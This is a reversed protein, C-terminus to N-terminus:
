VVSKVSTPKGDRQYLQLPYPICWDQWWRKAILQEIAPLQEVGDESVTIGLLTTHPPSSSAIEKHLLQVGRCEERSLAVTRVICTTIQCLLLAENVDTMVKEAREAEYGATFLYGTAFAIATIAGPAKAADFIRLWITKRLEDPELPFGCWERPDLLLSSSVQTM